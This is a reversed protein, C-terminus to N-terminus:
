WFTGDVADPGKLRKPWCVSKVCMADCHSVQHHSYTSQSTSQMTVSQHSTPRWTASLVTACSHAFYLVTGSLGMTPTTRRVPRTCLESRTAKRSIALCSQAHAAGGSM